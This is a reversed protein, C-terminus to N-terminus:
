IQIYKLIYNIGTICLQIKLMMVGNNLTVHDKLFWELICSSSIFCKKNNDINFVTISGLLQIWSQKIFLFNLLVNNIQFLFRKYCELHRLQWKQAIEFQLEANLKFEFSFKWKFANETWSWIGCMVTFCVCFERVLQFSSHQEWRVSGTSCSVGSGAMWGHAANRRSWHVCVWASVDSGEAATDTGGGWLAQRSEGVFRTKLFCHCILCEWNVVRM